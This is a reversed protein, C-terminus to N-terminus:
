QGYSIGFECFEIWTTNGRPRGSTRRLKWAVVWRCRKVIMLQWLFKLGLRMVLLFLGKQKWKKLWSFLSQGSVLLTLCYHLNQIIKYKYSRPVLMNNKVIFFRSCIIDLLMNDINYQYNKWTKTLPLVM